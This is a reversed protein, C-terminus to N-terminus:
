LDYQVAQVIQDQDVTYFFFFFDISKNWWRTAPIALDPDTNM